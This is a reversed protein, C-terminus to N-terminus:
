YNYLMCFAGVVHYLKANLNLGRVYDEIIQFQMLFKMICYFGSKVRKEPSLFIAGKIPTPMIDPNEIKPAV